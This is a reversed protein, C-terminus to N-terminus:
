RSRFVGCCGYVGYFDFKNKDLHSEIASYIGYEDASEGIERRRTNRRDTFDHFVIFSNERLLSPLLKCTEATHEYSHSHDIFAMSFRIDQDIFSTMADTADGSFLRVYDDLKANELHHLAQTSMQERLEVTWIKDKSRASRLASAMISASLGCYTGLELISGNAYFALEYLKLADAPRLWGPIGLDITMGKRPADALSRHESNVYPGSSGAYTPRYPRDVAGLHEFEVWTDLHKQAIQEM